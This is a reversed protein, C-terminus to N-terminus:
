NYICKLCKSWLMGSLALNMLRQFVAPANCLGFLMVNFAFLGDHMIFATKERNDAIDM